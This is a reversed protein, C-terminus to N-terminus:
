YNQLWVQLVEMETCPEGRRSLRGSHARDGDGGDAETKLVAPEDEVAEDKIHLVAAHFCDPKIAICPIHRM